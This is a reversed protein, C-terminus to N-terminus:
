HTFQGTLSLNQKALPDSLELSGSYDAPANLLLHKIAEGDYKSCASNLATLLSETESWTLSKEEARMIRKHETGSVNDGILLEEFLKEGPRLGTFEIEIDGDPHEASKVSLGSLKVMEIALDAIKVPEGMDLVFVDGGLGMSGAQIVLEAAEPITMFYRIIDPHTVTIPGGAKIQKRFLPVVSGSSGLVNGFRVMTFRTKNQHKALAQLVLEAIRKTTGMVNTPRVAKDTSILVFSEVKADIAAQAAHWTGFINNKVGEVINHEVMPVHKYAAAHYVTHPSLTRMTQKLHPLNQVSGLIPIIKTTCAKGLMTCASILEQEIAYLSYESIEFLILTEPKLRLIQRSLESGISGGAGTVMVVKNEICRSLLAPEAAVQERGLLDEIAVDQLDSIKATGEVIQHIPPITKVATGIQELQKIIISKQHRGAAGLALLTIKANHQHLLENIDEPPYVKLGYIVSGQISKDDDIFAVAHYNTAGLSRVLQCGTEGAGYVIVNTVNNTNGNTLAVISRMLMRPLGVFILAIVMFIIPVSRPTTANFFFSAVALTVAAAGVGIAISSLAQTNLYRLIARYLGLRIFVATAVLLTTALAYIENLGFTIDFRGLRLASAFYYAGILVVIDYTLSIFRKIPRKANFLAELM